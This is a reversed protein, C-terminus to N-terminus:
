WSQPPVQSVGARAVQVQRLLPPPPDDQGGGGGARARGPGIVAGRPLLPAQLVAGVVLCPRDRDRGFEDRAHRRPRQSPPVGHVPGCNGCDQRWALCPPTLDSLKLVRRAHETGPVVLAAAAEAVLGSGPLEGVHGLQDAVGVRSRQTPPQQRHCRHERQRDRAHRGVAAVVGRGVTVQARRQFGSALGAGGLKARPSGVGYRPAHKVVSVRLAREAQQAVGARRQVPQGSLRNPGASSAPM